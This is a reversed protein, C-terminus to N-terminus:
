ILLLEQNRDKIEIEYSIRRKFAQQLELPELPYFTSSPSNSLIFVKNWWAKKNSYRCDIEASWVDLLINMKRIPWETPNFEEFIIVTQNCYNNFPDRGPLVIYAEPYATRTRHSKGVGTPGWLITTTVTRRTPPSPGTMLHLSTLGSHFKTWQIPYTAAVQNLPMGSTIAKTVEELDTRHGQKAAQQPDYTGEETYNNEKTCYNRNQEESGKAPELHLTAEGLIMKAITLTRRKTLRVYGQLHLQGTTPAVERGYVLYIMTQNDFVPKWATQEDNYNYTWSWRDSRDSRPM